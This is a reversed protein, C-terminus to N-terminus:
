APQWEHPVPFWEWLRKPPRRPTAPEAFDTFLAVEEGAPLAGVPV